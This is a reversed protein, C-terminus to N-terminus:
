DEDEEYQTEFRCECCLSGAVCSECCYHEGDHCYGDYADHLGRGCQNCNDVVDGCEDCTTVEKPAQKKKTKKIEPM